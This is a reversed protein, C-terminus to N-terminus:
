TRSSRRRIWNSAQVLIGEWRRNLKRQFERTPGTWRRFPLCLVKWWFGLLLFLGDEVLCLLRYTQALLLALIGALRRLPWLLTFYLIRGFLRLIGELLRVVFFASRVVRRHFWLRYLAYGVACLPLTYLRLRGEDTTYLVFFVGAAVVIWFMLDAAPRVWRLYRSAGTVTNYVDFLAGAIGAVLLLEWVSRLQQLSSM